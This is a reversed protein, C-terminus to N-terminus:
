KGRIKNILGRNKKVFDELLFKLSGAADGNNDNKLPFGYDEYGEGWKHLRITASQAGRVRSLSAFYRVMRCECRSLARM